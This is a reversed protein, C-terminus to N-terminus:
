YNVWEQTKRSAYWCPLLGFQPFLSHACAENVIGDYGYEIKNGKYQIAYYRRVKVVGYQQRGSPIPLWLVLTDGLYLIGLFLVVLPIRDKWRINACYNVFRIPLARARDPPNIQTTMSSTLSV